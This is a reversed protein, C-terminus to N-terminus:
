SGTSVEEAGHHHLGGQGQVVCRGDGRVNAFRMLYHGGMHGELLRFGLRPVAEAAFPLKADLYFAALLRDPDLNPPLDTRYLEQRDKFPSAKILRVRNPGFGGGRSAGNSEEKEASHTATGGVILILLLVAPSAKNM